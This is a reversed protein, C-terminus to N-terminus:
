SGPAGGRQGTCSGGNRRRCGAPPDGALAGLLDDGFEAEGLNLRLSALPPGVIEAGGAVALGERDLDHRGIALEGFDLLSSGGAAASDRVTAISSWCRIEPM